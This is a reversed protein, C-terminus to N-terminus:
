HRKLDGPTRGNFMCGQTHRGRYRNEAEAFRSQGIREDDFKAV